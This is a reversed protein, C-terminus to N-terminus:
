FRTFGAPFKAEPSIYPYSSQTDAVEVVQAELVIDRRQIKELRKIANKYIDAVTDPIAAGDRSKYLLYHMIETVTQSVLDDCVAFPVDYVGRVYGHVEGVAVDNLQEILSDSVGADFFDGEPEDEGDVWPALQQLIPLSLEGKLRQLTTYLM